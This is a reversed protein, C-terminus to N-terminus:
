YSRTYLHASVLLVYYRIESIRPCHFLRYSTHALKQHLPARVGPPLIGIVGVFFCGTPAILAHPWPLFVRLYELIKVDRRFGM